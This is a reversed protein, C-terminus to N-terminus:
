KNPYTMTSVFIIKLPYMGKTQLNKMSFSINRVEGGAVLSKFEEYKLTLLTEAKKFLKRVISKTELDEQFLRNLTLIIAVPSDTQFLEWYFNSWANTAKPMKIYLYILMQSAIELYENTMNDFKRKNGTIQLEEEM